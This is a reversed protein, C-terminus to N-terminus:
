SAQEKRRKEFEKIIEEPTKGLNSLSFKVDDKLEHDPYKELFQLYIEKAKDPLNMDNEYSFGMLFLSHPTKEYDPYKELIQTYCNNSKNFNRLSRYIEASKFLYSPVEPENPFGNIFAEYTGVLKEAKALDFTFKKKDDKNEYLEKTYQEIDSLLDDKSKVVKEATAANTSSTSDTSGGSGCSSICFFCFLLCSVFLTNKM